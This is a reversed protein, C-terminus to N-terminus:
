HRSPPKPRLQPPSRPSRRAHCPYRRPLFWTLTPGYSYVTDYSAYTYTYTYTYVARSLPRRDAYRPFCHPHSPHDPPLRQASLSQSSGNHTYCLLRPPYSTLQHSHLRPPLALLFCQINFTGPPCHRCFFGFFKRKKGGWWWGGPVEEQFEM